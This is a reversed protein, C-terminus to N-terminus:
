KQLKGHVYRLVSRNHVIIKNKAQIMWFAWM